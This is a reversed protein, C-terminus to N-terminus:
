NRDGFGEPNNEHWKWATEIIKEINDFKPKWGLIKKAKESSAILTSPDGSRRPGISAPIEKDTVKRAAQLIEMNSFGTASGLNFATSSNGAELYKLALVHADALDLVHVYDRVNTGDKTPYDNGFIQLNLRKGAAVQLIIPILHTEPSHDEGISADPMAGAVNFYRLAIFKLGDALDAWHMIKEMALKSEGYANTPIQPDTEKIPIQKPEGYTAATSSFVIRKIGFQKMAELLTVMGCTNNDFYKLPNKMSEPVVSFAAFHVIGDVKEQSFVSSLFKFDRIDGQYFRARRDVAKRHGTILNDLVIVDEGAALLQKVTHSGIYGAGGLVAIAM